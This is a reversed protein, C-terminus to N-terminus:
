TWAFTVISDRGCLLTRQGRPSAVPGARRLDGHYACGDLVIPDALAKAGASHALHIAGLIHPEAPRHRELEQRRRELGIRFAPRPQQVLRAGGRHQAGRVDGDGVVDALVAAGVEDDHLVDFALQQRRADAFPGSGTRSTTSTPRCTASASSSACARPMTWRSM